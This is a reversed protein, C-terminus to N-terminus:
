DEATDAVVSCLAANGANSIIPKQEVLRGIGSREPVPQCNAFDGQMRGNM